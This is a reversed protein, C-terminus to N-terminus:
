ETYFRHNIYFTARKMYKKLNGLQNYVRVSCKNHFQMRFSNLKIPIQCQFHVKKFYKRWHCVVFHFGCRWFNELAISKTKMKLIRSKIWKRESSLISLIMSILKFLDLKFQVLQNPTDITNSSNKFTLVHCIAFKHM